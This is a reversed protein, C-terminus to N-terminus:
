KKCLFSVPMLKYWFALSTFYGHIMVLKPKKVAQEESQLSELTFIYGRLTSLPVDKFVYDINLELKEIRFLAKIMSRVLNRKKEYHADKKTAYVTNTGTNSSDINIANPKKM